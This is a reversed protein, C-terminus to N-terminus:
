ATAADPCKDFQAVYRNILATVDPQHGTAISNVIFTHEGQVMHVKLPSGYETIDRSCDEYSYQSWFKEWADTQIHVLGSITNADMVHPDFPEIQEDQKTCLRWQTKHIVIRRRAMRVAHADMQGLGLKARETASVLATDYEDEPNDCSAFLPALEVHTLPSERAVQRAIRIDNAAVYVSTVQVEKPTICRPGPFPTDVMFVYAPTAGLARAACAIKQVLLAGTSGGLLHFTPSVDFFSCGRLIEAALAAAFTEITDHLLHANNASQLYGHVLGWVCTHLKQAIGGYHAVSGWISPAVVLPKASATPAIHNLRVLSEGIEHRNVPTVGLEPTTEDTAM